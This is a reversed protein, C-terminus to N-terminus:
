RPPQQGSKTGNGGVRDKGRHGGIAHARDLLENILEGRGNFTTPPMRSTTMPMLSARECMLM